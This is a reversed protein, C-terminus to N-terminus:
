LDLAHRYWLMGVVKGDRIYLHCVGGLWDGIVDYNDSSEAGHCDIGGYKPDRCPSNGRFRFNWRKRLVARAESQTMGIRVGFAEGTEIRHVKDDYFDRPLFQASAPGALAGALGAALLLRGWPKRMGMEGRMISM